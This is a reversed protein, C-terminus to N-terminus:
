RAAFGVRGAYYTRLFREQRSSPAGLCEVTGAGSLVIERLTNLEPKGEEILAARRLRRLRSDFVDGEKLFVRGSGTVLVYRMFEALQGETFAPPICAAVTQWKESLARLRFRFFGDICHEEKEEALRLRVYRADEAFDAAIVAALLIERQDRSLGAPHVQGCLFEYKYGVCIVEAIKEALVARLRSFRVGDGRLAYGIRGGALRVSAAVAQPKFAACGAAIYAIYRCHTDRESVLLSKM